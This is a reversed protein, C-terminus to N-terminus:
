AHKLVAAVIHPNNLFRPWGIHNGLGRSVIMNTTGMTYVGNTYTPLFDFNPGVLGDTFPLRVIGGHAHGCMVLDVGLSSYLPLTNNRHTLMVIFNSGEDAFIKEVFDAPKIGDAPGNPDEAGAIIISGGGNELRQYQNRLVHVGCEEFMDLLPRIAGSDWEHNGTVYYVPAIPVLATVLAEAVELQKEVPKKIQYRDIIDGTVAIIDPKAARVKEILRTNDKGFESSHLDSLQVIRFGDYQEPLNPYILEYETTVIRTNSDFVLIAASIVLILLIILFARKRKKSKM